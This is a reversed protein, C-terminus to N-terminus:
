RKHRLADAMADTLEYAGLRPTLRVVAAPPCHGLLAAIRLAPSAVMVEARNAVVARIVGDGVDDPSRTRLGAPPPLGTDAWM